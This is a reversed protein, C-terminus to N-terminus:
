KRELTRAPNGVMTVDAPVSRLVVAGLGLVSDSGIEAQNMISVSPAIWARPGVRVSGGVMSNAIVVVDEDLEVNHAIHVLNDVKCGRHLRTDGLAGRDICTNSGIEVDEHIVVRGVHPFRRFRGHPDKEYGFGPLGISCNAGIRVGAHLLVNALVTNPGVVVREHIEVKPGIVVGQSLIADSAIAPSTATPPDGIRPWTIEVLHSFFREVALSFALKPSACRIVMPGGSPAERPAILLGGHFTALQDTGRKLRASSLWSIDGPGAREISEIGSLERDLLAAPVTAHATGSAETTLFELLDRFRVTTM